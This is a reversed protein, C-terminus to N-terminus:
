DAVVAMERSPKDDYNRILEHMDAMVVPKQNWGNGLANILSRATWGIVYCLAVPLNIIVYCLVMIFVFVANASVKWALAARDAFISFGKGIPQFVKANWDFPPKKEKVIKPVALPARTDDTSADITAVPATEATPAPTAAGEILDSDAPKTAEALAVESTEGAEKGKLMTVVNDFSTLAQGPIAAAESKATSVAEEIEKLKAKSM